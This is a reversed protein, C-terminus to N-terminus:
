QMIQEIGKGQLHQEEQEVPEMEYRQQVTSQHLKGHSCLQYQSCVQKKQSAKPFITFKEFAGAALLNFPYLLRSM